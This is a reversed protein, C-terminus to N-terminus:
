APRDDALDELIEAALKRSRVLLEDQLLEPVEQGVDIESLWEELLLLRGDISPGFVPGGHLAKVLGSDDFLEEICETLSSMLRPDLGSWVREQYDRDALENLADIVRDRYVQM